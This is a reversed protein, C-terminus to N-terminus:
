VLNNKKNKYKKLANLTIEEIMGKFSIYGEDAAMMRLERMEDELFHIIKAKKKPSKSNETRTM